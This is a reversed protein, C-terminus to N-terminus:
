VNEQKMTEEKEIKLHMMFIAGESIDRKKKTVGTILSIVRPEEIQIKNPM